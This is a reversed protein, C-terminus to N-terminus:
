HGVVMQLGNSFALTSQYAGNPDFVAAQWVVTLGAAVSRIPREVSM